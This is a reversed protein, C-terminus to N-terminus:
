KAGDRETESAHHSNKHFIAEREGHIAAYFWANILGMKNVDPRSGYVELILARKRFLHDMM